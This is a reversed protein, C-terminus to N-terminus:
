REEVVKRHTLRDYVLGAAGGSLAGIGAGKGGGALAGIAAGVGAGGGVIAASHSFPREKVVRRPAYATGASRDAYARQTARPRPREIVAPRQQEIVRVPPRSAYAPLDAGPSLGQSDFASAPYSASPNILTQPGTETRRTGWALIGVLAVLAVGIVAVLRTHRM